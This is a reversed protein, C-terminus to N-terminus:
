RKEETGPAATIIYKRKVHSLELVYGWITQLGGRLPHRTLRRGQAHGPSLSKKRSIPIESLTHSTLDPWLFCRRGQRTNERPNSVRPSTLQWIPRVRSSGMHLPDLAEQWCGNLGSTVSLLRPLTGDQFASGGAQLAELHCCGERGGRGALM